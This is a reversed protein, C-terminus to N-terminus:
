VDLIIHGPRTKKVPLRRIKMSQERVQELGTQDLTHAATRGTDPADRNMEDLSKAPVGHEFNCVVSSNRRARAWFAQVQPDNPDGMFRAEKVAALMDNAAQRMERGEQRQWPKDSSRVKNAFDGIGNARYEFDDPTLVTYTDDENAAKEREDHLAILGECAFFVLQKYRRLNGQRAGVSWAPKSAM